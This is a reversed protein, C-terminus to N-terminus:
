PRYGSAQFVTNPPTKMLQDISTGKNKEMYSEVIRWGTFLGIYGPSAEGLEPTKPGDRIYQQNITPELSYLLDNKVFFGWILSENEFCGELQKGTYGLLLSDPTSPMIRKLLYIRKGKEIMEDVLQKGSAQYPFIDDVLCKMINVPITEPSFRRVQYAYFIGSQMGQEYLPANGGLHFQMAIGAGNATRVDGYDGVSFSEYADMPGIFPTIVFPSDPIFSPVLFSLWQLSHEIEPLVGHLYKSVIPDAQKYVPHYSRIFSKVGETAQPNEPFIGLVATLYGTFFDGYRSSLANLEEAMRSTDMSFLASDFRDIRIEVPRMAEMPLRSEGNCAGIWLCSFGILFLLFGNKM